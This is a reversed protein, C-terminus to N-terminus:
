GILISYWFSNDYFDEKVYTYFQCNTDETCTQQCMDPDDMLDFKIDSGRFDIQNLSVEIWGIFLLVPNYKKVNVPEKLIM